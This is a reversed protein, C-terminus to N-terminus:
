QETNGDTTMTLCYGVPHTASATQSTSPNGNFYV